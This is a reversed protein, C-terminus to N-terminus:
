TEERNKPAFALCDALTLDYGALMAAPSEPQGTRMSLCAAEVAAATLLCQWGSCDYTPSQDLVARAFAEVQRAFPDGPREDPEATELVKGDRDTLTCGDPGAVIAGAQGYLTLQEHVPGFCRSVTVTATTPGSYRCLAVASDDTDYVPQDASLGLRQATGAICYITEPLGVWQVILDLMHYGMERLAGGGSDASGRWALPGGWNFLYQAEALYTKGFGGLWGAAHTYARVFRRPLGIALKVGGARSQRCMAVAAPLNVAPPAGAWVHLGREAALRVVEASAAPPVAAFVVDPRPEVMARRDDTYHPCDFEAAATAAQSPNRDAVGVLDLLPCRGLAELAHAGFGGAGVLVARLRADSM